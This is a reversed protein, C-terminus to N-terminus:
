KVGFKDADAMILSLQHSLGADNAMQIAKQIIYSVAEAENARHYFMALARLSVMKNIIGINLNDIREIPMQQVRQLAMKVSDRSSRARLFGKIETELQLYRIM